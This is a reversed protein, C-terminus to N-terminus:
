RRRQRGPGRGMNGRARRDEPAMREQLRDRMRQEFAQQARVCRLAFQPDFATAMERLFNARLKAEEVDLSELLGLLENFEEAGDSDCKAWAKRAENKRKKLEMMREKQVNFIPWFVQATQADLELEETLFGVVMADMRERLAERDPGGEPRDPQAMMLSSWLPGLTLALLCLFRSINLMSNM